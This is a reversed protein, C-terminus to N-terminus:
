SYQSNKWLGCLAEFCGCPQGCGNIARTEPGIGDELMWPCKMCTTGMSM